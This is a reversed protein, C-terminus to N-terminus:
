GLTLAGDLLKQEQEMEDLLTLAEDLLKQEEEMEDLLSHEMWFLSHEM